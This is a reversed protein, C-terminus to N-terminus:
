RLTPEGLFATLWRWAPSESKTFVQSSFSELAEERSAGVGSIVPQNVSSVVVLTSGLREQYSVRVSLAKLLRIPSDAASASNPVIERLKEEEKKTVEFDFAPIDSPLGVRMFSRAVAQGFHELYPSALGLRVTGSCHAQVQDLAASEVRQLNVMQDPRAWSFNSAPMAPLIYLTPEHGERIIELRAFHDPNFTLWEMIPHVPAILVHNVKAFELDCSQTLIIRDGISEAIGLEGNDDFIARVPFDSLQDGQQPPSAPDRTVYWEPAPSDTM